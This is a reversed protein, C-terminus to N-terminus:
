MSLLMQHIRADGDLEPHFSTGLQNKYRVAVVEGDVEALTEVGDGVQTIFPARIFTMPITGLGAFEAETHFSGLQRGYANRRVTVPLTKLWTSNHQEDVTSGDGNVQDISQALLILGACTGLVPMGSEILQRIRDLMGLDRLMRGQSTSEGGPLILCDIDDDLDSAQRLEKFDAGLRRVVAEHEAFAGQVALIGVKSRAMM